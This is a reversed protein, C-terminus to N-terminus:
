SLAFRTPEASGLNQRRAIGLYFLIRSLPSTGAYREPRIKNSKPIERRLKPVTPDDQPRIGLTSRQCTSQYAQPTGHIKVAIGPTGEANVGRSGSEESRASDM